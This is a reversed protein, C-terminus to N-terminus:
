ATSIEDHLRKLTVKLHRRGRKYGQHCEATKVPRNSFFLDQYAQKANDPLESVARRVEEVIEEVELTDQDERPDPISSLDINTFAPHKMIYRNYNYAETLIIRRAWSRFPARDPNYQDRKEHIRIWTKQLVEHSDASAWLIKSFFLYRRFETSYKTYLEAFDESSGNLLEYDTKREMSEKRLEIM